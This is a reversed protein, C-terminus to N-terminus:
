IAESNGDAFASNFSFCSTLKSVVAIHRFSKRIAKVSINFIIENTLVKGIVVVNYSHIKEDGLFTFDYRRVRM